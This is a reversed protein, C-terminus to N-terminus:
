IRSLEPKILDMFPSLDVEWETSKMAKDILVGTKGGADEMKVQLDM